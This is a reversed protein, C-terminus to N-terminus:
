DLILNYKNLVKKVTKLISSTDREDISYYTEKNSTNTFTRHDFFGQEVQYCCVDPVLMEINLINRPESLDTGIILSARKTIDRGELKVCVNCLFQMADINEKKSVQRFKLPKGM